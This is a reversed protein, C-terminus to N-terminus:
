HSRGAENPYLLKSFDSQWYQKTDIDLVTLKGSFGAGTDINWINFINMPEHLNYKTTASHGIFIEHYLKFRAPFYISSPALTKDICLATEWLTRDWSFNSKYKEKQAGYVSTFGAHVYLRNNEDIYFGKMQELFALHKQKVSDSVNLYSDLTAQGGNIVWSENVVNNKLWDLHWLDHNGIMFVCQHTTHLQILYDLLDATQSWGDVYDGLFILTDNKSIEARSFVQELTKLGGHIDGIVLTRNKMKM